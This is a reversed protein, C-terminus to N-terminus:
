QAPQSPWLAGALATGVMDNALKTMNHLARQGPEPQSVKCVALGEDLM